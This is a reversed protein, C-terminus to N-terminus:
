FIKTYSIWCLENHSNPIRSAQGILFLKWTMSSISLGFVILGSPLFPNLNFTM